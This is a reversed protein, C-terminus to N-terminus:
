FCAIPFNIPREAIWSRNARGCVKGGISLTVKVEYTGKEPPVFCVKRDPTVRSLITRSPQSLLTVSSSLAGCAMAPIRYFESTSVRCIFEENEELIHSSNMLLPVSLVEVLVGISRVFEMPSPSYSPPPTTPMKKPDTLCFLLPGLKDLVRPDWRSTAAKALQTRAKSGLVSVEIDSDSRKISEAFRLSTQLSCVTMGVDDKEGALQKAFRDYRRDVEGLLEACRKMLETKLNEFASTIETKLKNPHVAVHQEVQRICSLHGEFEKLKDSVEKELVSLQKRVITSAKEAPQLSHSKHSYLACDRCIVEECNKCHVNLLEHPHITCPYSVTKKRFKAKSPLTVVHTKFVTMRKHAVDCAECLYHECDACFGVVRARKDDCSGCTKSITRSPIREEIESKVQSNSLFGSVGSVPLPHNGRCVPCVVMRDAAIKQLCKFCFTHLCPLIRPDEYPELCVRCFLENLEETVTAESQSRTGIKTPEMITNASISTDRKSTAEYAGKSCPTRM